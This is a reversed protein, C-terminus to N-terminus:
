LCSVCSFVHCMPLSLGCLFLCSVGETDFLFPTDHAVRQLTQQTERDSIHCVAHSMVCIPHSCNTPDIFTYTEKAFSVYLLSSIRCFLGIIKDIRSVTAVGYSFVHCVAHSMVCLLLCSVCSFVRCVPLSMVCRFLCSVGKTDFSFPTDHVVRQSTAQTERVRSMVCLLLITAFPCSIYSVGKPHACV